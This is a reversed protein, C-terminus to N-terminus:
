FVIMGISRGVGYGILILILSFGIMVYVRAKIFEGQENVKKLIPKAYNMLIVESRDLKSITIRKAYQM